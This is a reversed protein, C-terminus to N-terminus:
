TRRSSRPEGFFGINEVLGNRWATNLLANAFVRSAHREVEPRARELREGDTMEVVRAAM